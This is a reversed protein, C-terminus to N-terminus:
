PMKEVAVTVQGPIQSLDATHLRTDLSRYDGSGIKGDGDADIRVSVFYTGNPDPKRGSIEFPLGNGTAAASNEYAVDHIRQGAVLRAPQGGGGSGVLHIDVTAHSLSVQDEGSFVIRGYVLPRVAAAAADDDGGGGAAAGSGPMSLNTPMGAGGGCGAVAMAALLAAVPLFSFQRM